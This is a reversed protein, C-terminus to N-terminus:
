KCCGRKVSDLVYRAAEFPWIIAGGESTCTSLLGMKAEDDYIFKAPLVTYWNRWMDERSPFDGADWYLCFYRPTM